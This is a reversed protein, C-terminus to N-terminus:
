LEPLLRRKKRHRLPNNLGGRLNAMCICGCCLRPPWPRRQFVCVLHFWISLKFYLWYFFQNFCHQFFLQFFLLVICTCRSLHCLRQGCNNCVTYLRQFVFPVLNHSCHCNSLNCVLPHPHGRPAQHVLLSILKCRAGVLVRRKKTNSCHVAKVKLLCVFSCVFLWGRARVYVCVFVYSHLWGCLVFARLEQVVWSVGSNNPFSCWLARIEKKFDPKKCCPSSAESRANFNTREHM